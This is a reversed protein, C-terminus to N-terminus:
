LFGTRSCFSGSVFRLGCVHGHGGCCGQAHGLFLRPLVRLEAWRVSQHPAAARRVAQGARGSRSGSAEAVARGVQTGTPGPIPLFSLRSLCSLFRVAVEGARPPRATGGPPPVAAAGGGGRGGAVEPPAVFTEPRRQPQPQPQDPWSVTAGAVPRAPVEAPAPAHGRCPPHEHTHGGPRSPPPSPLPFCFTRTPTAEHM